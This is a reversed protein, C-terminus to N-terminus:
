LTFKVSCQGSYRYRDWETSNDSRYAAINVVSHQGAVTSVVGSSLLVAGLTEMICGLVAAVGFSM